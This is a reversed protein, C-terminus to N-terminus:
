LRRCLVLTKEDGFGKCLLVSDMAEHLIELGYGRAAFNEIPSEPTALWDYDPGHYSLEVSFVGHSLRWEVLCRGPKGGMGHEAVNSLAENCALVLRGNAEPDLQGASELARTLTARLTEAATGSGPRLNFRLSGGSGAPEGTRQAMKVCVISVDDGFGSESFEFGLRVLAEVLEEPTEDARARAVRMIREEGFFEGGRGPCESLGDSFVIFLDGERYPLLFSRFSQREVFGLPMDAGKVLRCTGTAKRYHVIPTHGFDVLEAVGAAEYFRIYSLTAISRRALLHPTIGREAAACIDTVSPAETESRSMTALSRFLGVKIVTGLIAADMGKGMVDGLLVDICGPALRMVDFFDGDVLKSPMAACAYRLYSSRVLEGNVLVAAQLRASADADISQARALRVRSEALETEDKLFVLRREPAGALPSHRVKFLRNGRGPTTCRVSEERIDGVTTGSISQGTQGSPPTSFLANWAELDLVGLIDILDTGDPVAGLVVALNAAGSLIIRGSDDCVLFAGEAVSSFAPDDVACSNM